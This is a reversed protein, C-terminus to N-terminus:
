DVTTSCSLRSVSLQAFFVAICATTWDMAYGGHISVVLTEPDPQAKDPTQIEFHNLHILGWGPDYALCDEPKKYTAYNHNNHFLTPEKAPDFTRLEQMSTAM